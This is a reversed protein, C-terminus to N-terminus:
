LDNTEHPIELVVPKSIACFAVLMECDDHRKSKVSTGSQLRAINVEKTGNMHVLEFSMLHATGCVCSRFDVSNLQFGLSISNFKNSAILRNDSVDNNHFVKVSSQNLEIKVIRTHAM